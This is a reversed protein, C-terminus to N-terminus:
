IYVRARYTVGTQCLPCQAFLGSCPECFGAHACPLLVTNVPAEFCIKCMPTEADHDSRSAALAEAAKFKEDAEKLKEDAVALKEDVEKTRAAALQLKEDAAMSVAKAAAMQDNAAKMVSEAKEQAHTAQMHKITLMETATEVAQAKAEVEENALHWVKCKLAILERARDCEISPVNEKKEVGNGAEEIVGDKEYMEKSVDVNGDVADVSEKKAKETSIINDMAVKEAAIKKEKRAALISLFLPYGEESIGPSKKKDGPFKVWKLYPRLQPGYESQMIDSFAADLAAELHSPRREYVPKCTSNTSKSLTSLMVYAHSTPNTLVGLPRPIYPRKRSYVHAFVGRRNPSYAAGTAEGVAPYECQQRICIYECHIRRCM